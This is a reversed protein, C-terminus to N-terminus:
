IKCQDSSQKFEFILIEEWKKGSKVVNNILKGKGYKIVWLEVSKYATLVHPFGYIL